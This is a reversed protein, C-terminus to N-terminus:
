VSSHRTLRGYRLQSELGPGAQRGTWVAQGAGVELVSGSVVRGHWQSKDGQTM